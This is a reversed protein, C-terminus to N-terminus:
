PQRIQLAGIQIFPRLLDVVGKRSAALIAHQAPRQGKSRVVRADRLRQERQVVGGDVLAGEVRARALERNQDRTALGVVAELPVRVLLEAQLETEVRLQNGGNMVVR